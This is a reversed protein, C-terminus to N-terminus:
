SAGRTRISSVAPTGALALRVNPLEGLETLLAVLEDTTVHWL